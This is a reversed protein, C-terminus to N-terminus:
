RFLGAWETERKMRGMRPGFRLRLVISCQRFGERRAGIRNDFIGDGDVGHMRCLCPSETKWACGRGLGRNRCM